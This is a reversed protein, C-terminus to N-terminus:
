SCKLSHCLKVPTPFKLQNSEITPMAAIKTNLSEISTKSTADLVLVADPKSTLISLVRKVAWQRPDSAENVNLYERSNMWKQLMHVATSAQYGETTKTLVLFLHQKMVDDPIGQFMMGINEFLTRLGTLKSSQLEYLPCVMGIGKLTELQQYTLQDVVGGCILEPKGRTDGSGPMDVLATVGDETLHASPFLTESITDHNTTFVEPKSHLSPVM